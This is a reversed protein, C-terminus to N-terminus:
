AVNRWLSDDIAFPPVFTRYHWFIDRTVNYKLNQLYKKLFIYSVAVLELEKIERM